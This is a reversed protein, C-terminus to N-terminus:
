QKDAEILAAPPERLLLVRALVPRFRVPAMVLAEWLHTPMVIRVLAGYLLSFISGTTLLRAISPWQTMHTSDLWLTVSAAALALTWAFLCGGLVRLAPAGLVQFTLMCVVLRTLTLSIGVGAAIAVPTGWERATWATVALLIGGEVLMYAANRKFRGQSWLISTTLGITCRMPYFAALVQLPLVAGQWEPQLMLDFLPQAIVALGISMPAATLMLSDLFRLAAQRKRDVEAAIKVLSPFLVIQATFSLLAYSTQFLLQAGFFYLGLAIEDVYLGAILYDGQEVMMFAIAGVILWKTQHFIEIWRHIGFPSRLPNEKTARTCAAWEYIAVILLPLVFSMPGAGLWAFLITSSYRLGNSILTINGLTGFRLDIRLKSRLVASPVGLPLSLAIIYLPGVLEPMNYASTGALLPAALALVVAAIASVFLGYWFIPGVLEQYREAGRQVLLERVGGDRLITVIASVAIAAAYIGFDEPALLWALVINAGFAGFKSLANLVAFLGMGRRVVGAMPPAPVPADTESAPLGAPGQPTTPETNM